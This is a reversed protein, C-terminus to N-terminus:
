HQYEHYSEVIGQSNKFKTASIKLQYTKLTEMQYNSSMRLKM